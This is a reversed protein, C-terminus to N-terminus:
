LGEFEKECYAQWDAREGMDKEAYDLIKKFTELKKIEGKLRGNEQKLQWCEKKLDVHGDQERYHYLVELRKINDRMRHIKEELRVIHKQKNDSKIKLQEIEYELHEQFLSTKELLDDQKNLLKVVEEGTLMSDTEDVLYNRFEYLRIGDEDQFDEMKKDAKRLDFIGYGRYELSNDCYFKNDQQNLRETM